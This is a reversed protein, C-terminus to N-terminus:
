SWSWCRALVVVARGNHRRSAPASTATSAGVGASRACRRAATATAASAAAAAAADLANESCSGVVLGQDTQMVISNDAGGNTEIRRPISQATSTAAADTASKAASDARASNHGTV